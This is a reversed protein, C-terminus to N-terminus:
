FKNAGGALSPVSLQQPLLKNFNTRAVPSAIQPVSFYEVHAIVHAIVHTIVFGRSVHCIMAFAPVDMRVDM